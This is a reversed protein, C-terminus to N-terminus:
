MGGLKPENVQAIDMVPARARVFGYDGVDQKTVEPTFDYRDLQEACALLRQFAVGSADAPDGSYPMLREYWAVALFKVFERESMGDIQCALDNLQELGVCWEGIHKLSAIQCKLVTVADEGPAEAGVFELADIIEEDITPLALVTSLFGERATLEVRFILGEEPLEPLTVGDYVKPLETFDFEYYTGGTIGTGAEALREEGLKGYDLYPLVEDPFDVLENEVLFKGLDSATEINGAVIVRDTAYTMNILTKLDEPTGGSLMGNFIGRQEPSLTEISTMLFNLEAINAHGGCLTELACELNPVGDAECFIIYADDLNELRLRAKADKLDYRSAPFDIWVRNDSSQLDKCLAVEIM